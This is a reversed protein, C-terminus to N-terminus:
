PAGRGARRGSSGPCGALAPCGARPRALPGRPRRPPPRVSPLESSPYAAPVATGTGTVRRGGTRDPCGTVGGGSPRVHNPAAGVVPERRATWTVPIDLTFWETAAPGVALHVPPARPSDGRESHPHGDADGAQHAETREEPPGCTPCRRGTGKRARPHGRRGGREMRRVPTPGDRRRIVSRMWARQLDPLIRDTTRFRDIGTDAVVSNAVFRDRVHVLRQDRVIPAVVPRSGGVEYRLQRRADRPGELARRLEAPAVEYPGVIGSPGGLVVSELDVRARSEVVGDRSRAPRDIRRVHHEREGPRHTKGVQLIFFLRVAPDVGLVQEGGPVRTPVRADVGREVVGRLVDQGCEEDVIRGVTRGRDRDGRVAADREIEGRGSM